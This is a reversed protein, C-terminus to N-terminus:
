AAAAGSRACIIKSGIAAQIVVEFLQRPILEKLKHCLERGWTQAKDRHIIVSLADLSDGNILLDLKVLDGRGCTKTSTTLPPMAARCPNSGTM